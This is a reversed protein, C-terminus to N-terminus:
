QPFILKSRSLDTPLKHPTLLCFHVQVFSPFYPPNLVNYVTYPV